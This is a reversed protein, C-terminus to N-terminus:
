LLVEKGTRASEYVACLIKIMDVGQDPTYCPEDGRTLVDIFHRINNRHGNDNRVPLTATDLLHGNEETYIEAREDEWKIGAKTGRLEVFRNEKKINSAWSFEIQLVVSNEFRIMGMALDEVDFTGAADKDGFDSNVSDSVDNDAFKSYTNASVAVPRPNGMLWVALDIMHVGLDILPGGGSKAKTTFWGGKGPIGRRRQWGCRGCYIEGARGADIYSKLYRSAATFRNNRIVMLVKGNREAASRMAMAKEVDIADPKECIVHKGADLAAVAIESHMDNPTCIDVADIAPDRLLERYDTYVKAVPFYNERMYVAREEIIDCVAVVEARPEDLYVPAHSGKCIGGNGIIGIRVM